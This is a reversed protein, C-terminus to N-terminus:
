GQMEVLLLIEPNALEPNVTVTYFMLYQLFYFLSNLLIQQM